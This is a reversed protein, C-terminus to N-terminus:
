LPPPLPALAVRLLLLLLLAPRHLAVAAQTLLDHQPTMALSCRALLLQM